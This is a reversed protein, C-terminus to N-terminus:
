FSTLLTRTTMGYVKSSLGTGTNYTWTAYNQTMPLEFKANVTAKNSTEELDWVTDVMNSTELPNTLSHQEKNKLQFSISMVLGCVLSHFLWGLVLVKFLQNNM